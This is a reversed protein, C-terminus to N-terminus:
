KGNPGGDQATIHDDLRLDFTRAGPLRRSIDPYHTLFNSLKSLYNRDGLRLRLPRGQAMETVTLNESDSVDIESVQAAYSGIEHLFEVAQETRVRRIAPPDRRAIGFLAPLSFQARQPLRLIVGEGDILATESIAWRGGVMSPLMAFAIPKRETIQVDLRNPWRRSVTADKVWDITLLRRRREALPTLYISRGFDQAFVRAVEGPPTYVVGGIMLNPSPKVSDASGSLIFQSGSALFEDIQYAVAIAVIAAVSAGTWVLVTRIKGRWGPGPEPPKAKARRSVPPEPPTPQVPEEEPLELDLQAASKRGM